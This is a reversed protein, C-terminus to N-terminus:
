VKPLHEGSSFPSSSPDRTFPVALIYIDTPDSGVGPAVGPVLKNNLLLSPDPFMRSPSGM